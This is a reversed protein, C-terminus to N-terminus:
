LNPLTALRENNSKIPATLVERRVIKKQLAVGMDRTARHNWFSIDLQLRM